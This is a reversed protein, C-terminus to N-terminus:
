FPSLIDLVQQGYRPQQVDTMQGRGGYAIRAEAIKEYPITNDISIDEPRIIGAVNLIRNEFNVRVEQHGQIVMNGNPLIQAVTAAVKLKIDENRKVEGTGEFKSSTDGDLLSAPNVGGPFVKDLYNQFGLADPLASDESATRDRSTENKLNAEDTIDINVTLIDGIDKARQDKFFTKRSGGAWLSNPQREVVEQVPMPMTVPKYGAKATPNIIDSQRPAEGISALRDAANCGSLGIAAITGLTLLKLANMQKM